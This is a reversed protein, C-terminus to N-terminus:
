EYDELGHASGGFSSELVIVSLYSALTDGQLVGITLDNSYKVKAKAGYYM